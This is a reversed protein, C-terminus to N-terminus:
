PSHGPGRLSSNTGRWRAAMDYLIDSQNLNAEVFRDLRQGEVWAMKVIPYWQGKLKIGRDLYEFRVFADPRAARLYEDLQSYRQQQNKVERTFCRVAYDRGASSMKYVCAFNGSFVLPMGRPPLRRKGKSSTQISSACPLIKFLTM